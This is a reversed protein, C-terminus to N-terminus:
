ANQLSHKIQNLVWQPDEQLRKAPIRLLTYGYKKAARNKIHDRQKTDENNDHFSGDVEVLLKTNPFAFDATYRKYFNFQRIHPINAHQLIRSLRLESRNSNWCIHDKPIRGTERYHAHAAAIDKLFWVSEMIALYAEYAKLFFAHPDTYYQKASELIGPTYQELQKLFHEDLRQFAYPLEGTRELKHYRINERVYWATTHFIEALVSINKGSNVEKQLQQKDLVVDPHKKKGHVNGKLALSYRKHKLQRLESAYKNRYLVISTTYTNTPVGRLLLENRTLGQKLVYEVFDSETIVHYRKQKYCVIPKRLHTIQIKPACSKTVKPSNM